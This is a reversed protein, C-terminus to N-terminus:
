APGCWVYNAGKPCEPTPAATARSSKRQPSTSNGCQFVAEPVGQGRPVQGPRGRRSWKVDLANDRSLEGADIRREIEATILSNVEATADRLRRRSYPCSPGAGGRRRSKRRPRADLPVDARIFLANHDSGIDAKHRGLVGADFINGEDGRGTIVYDVVSRGRGRSEDEPDPVVPNFTYNWPCSLGGFDAM